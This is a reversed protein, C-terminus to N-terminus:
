RTRPAIDSHVACQRQRVRKQCAAPMDGDDLSLAFQFAMDEELATDEPSPFGASNRARTRWALLTVASAARRLFLSAWFCLGTPATLLVVADESLLTPKEEESAFLRVSALGALLM